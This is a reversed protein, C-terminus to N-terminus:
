IKSRRLRRGRPRGSSGQGTGVAGRGDRGCVRAGYRGLQPPYRRLFQVRARQWGTRAVEPEVERRTFSADNLVQPALLSTVTGAYGQGLLHLKLADADLDPRISHIGLIKGAFGTLAM